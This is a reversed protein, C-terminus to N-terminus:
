RGVTRAPSGNRRADQRTGVRGTADGLAIVAAGAGRRGGRGDIWLKKEGQVALIDSDLLSGEAVGERVWSGGERGAEGTPSRRAWRLLKLRARM